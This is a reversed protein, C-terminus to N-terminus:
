PKPHRKTNGLTGNQLCPVPSLNILNNKYYFRLDDARRLKIERISFFCSFCVPFYFTLFNKFSCYRSYTKKM